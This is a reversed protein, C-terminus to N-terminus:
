KAATQDPGPQAPRNQKKKEKKNALNKTAIELSKVLDPVAVERTGADAIQEGIEPADLAELCECQKGTITIVAKSGEFGNAIDQLGELVRKAEARNM